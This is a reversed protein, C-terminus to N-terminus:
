FVTPSLLHRCKNITTMQIISATKSDANRFLDKFCLDVDDHIVYIGLSLPARDPSNIAIERVNFDWPSFDWVRHRYRNTQFLQYKPISIWEIGFSYRNFRTNLLHENIPSKIPIWKTNNLAKYKLCILFPKKGKCYLIDDSVWSVFPFLHHLLCCITAQDDCVEM